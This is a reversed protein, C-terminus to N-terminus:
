LFHSREKGLRCQLLLNFAFLRLYDFNRNIVILQFKWRKRSNTTLSFTKTRAWSSMTITFVIFELNYGQFHMMNHDEKRSITYETMDELLCLTLIFSHAVCGLCPLNIYM